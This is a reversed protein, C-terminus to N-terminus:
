KRINLTYYIHTSPAGEVLAHPEKTSKFGYREYFAHTNENANAITELWCTTVDDYLTLSANLLMKGIGKNRMKQSVILYELHITNEEKAFACLGIITDPNNNDSVVLIHSNESHNIGKELIYEFMYNWGNRFEYLLPEDYSFYEPYGAVLTPGFYEDLLEENLSILAPIDKQEASKISFENSSIHASCLTIVVIVLINLKM